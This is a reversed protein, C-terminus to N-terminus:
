KCRCEDKTVFITSGDIENNNSDLIPENNSDLLPDYLTHEKILTAFREELKLIHSALNAAVDGDLMSQLQDFWANFDYAFQSTNTQYWIRWSEEFEETNWEYWQNWQAGWQRVLMDIDMVSVVGTVFPCESTGIMNTIDAETISTAGEKVTVYSLPYQWIENEGKKLTPRVPTASPTGKVYKIDDKRVAESHDVEIVIADIRDFLIEADPLKVLKLSDNKIWTHQFWGRGTDVQVTMGNNPAVQFKNYITEYVGDNILGDFLEAMQLSDYKRDGNVSNFFGSTVAM